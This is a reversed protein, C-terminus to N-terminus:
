LAISTHAFPAIKRLFDLLIKLTWHSVREPRYAAGEYFGDWHRREAPLGPRGEHEGISDRGVDNTTPPM